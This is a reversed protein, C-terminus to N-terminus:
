DWKSNTSLAFKGAGTFYMVIGFIFYIFIPGIYWGGFENLKFFNPLQVLLIAVLCNIAFGLGALKTRFGIIILLPALIEGIYVGYSLIKPLGYSDLLNGIQSVGNIIKSIGYVLMTAAVSARLILLGINLRTKMIKNKLTTNLQLEM